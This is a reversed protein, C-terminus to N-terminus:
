ELEILVQGATVVDGERALVSVVRGQRKSAIRVITGEVTGSAELAKTSGQARHASRDHTAATHTGTPGRGDPSSGSRAELTVAAVVGAAVTLLAIGRIPSRM